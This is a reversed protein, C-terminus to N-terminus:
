AEYVVDGGVITMAVRAERFPGERLPDRDLVAFDALKGVAISGSDAESHNIFASGNTFALLAQIPELSEEIVLPDGEPCTRTVAVDIEEMVNCTSVGWDSGMGIRAGFDVLSRFPYQWGSRVEGLFPQTLDVQDPENCAWVPQANAVVGLAAFRPRDQPHVVQIHAVHHRNDSERNRSRAFEVADLANRVARDGIAHFHCQFGHADLLEVIEGLDDGDIFDIGRNSTPRGHSDLWPETMSATFNEAVGDLMLKVSTPQFGDASQGRRHLLEEIQDTGRHRDWWMAGVVRGILRGSSAAELYAEQVMPDVAADQWGTVGYRVLEEQGRLLGNLYDEVTNPPSHREVLHVAGEHLTGQPTGDRNREIRGDPPDPTLSDIGALNLAVSNAWAGHGDTNWILVPRDPVVRDILEKAPCGREFWSQIWGAGLIWGRDPHAEAYSAIADVADSAESCGEFSCRLRDLGSTAPHVHADIFGPTVLRGNLEVIDTGPGILEEAVSGMAVIRDGRVALASVFLQAPDATFIREGILALDAAMRPLTSARM